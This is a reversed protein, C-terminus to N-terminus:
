DSIKCHAEIEFGCSGIIREFDAKYERFLSPAYFKTLKEIRLADAGLEGATKDVAAKCDAIIKQQALACVEAKAKDNVEEALSVEANIECSIIIKGNEQRLKTKTNKEKLQLNFSEGASSVTVTNGEMEETLWLVGAAEEHNLFGAARANKLVATKKIELSKGKQQGSDSGDGSDTGGEQEIISFVPLLGGATTEELKNLLVLLDGEVTAGSKYAYEHVEVMNEVASAGKTLPVSLVEKASEECYAVTVGLYNENEKKFWELLERMDERYLSSGFLIFKNHGIFIDSGLLYECGKVGEYVTKGKASVVRMNSKSADIPTDSGAGSPSFIQLSVEFMGDSMDVGIAHVIARRDIDVASTCGTLMLMVASVLFLMCRKTRASM